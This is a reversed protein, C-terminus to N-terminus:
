FVFAPERQFGPLAPLAANMVVRGSVESGSRTYLMGRAAQGAGVAVVLRGGDALQDTIAPPLVEVSGNVVIVDYPAAAPHGAALPGEVVTAGKSLSRELATRAAAALSPDQELAHVSAGLRSLLAAGYGTATGVELVRDTSKVDAFHILRAIFMPQTLYRGGGLPVDIDAYALEQRDQPVFFERPVELMADILRLETVDNPRVQGDVMKTRLQAGDLM